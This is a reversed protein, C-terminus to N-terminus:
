RFVLGARAPSGPRTPERRASRAFSQHSERWNDLARANAARDVAPGGLKLRLPRDDALHESITRPRLDIIGDPGLREMEARIKAEPIPWPMELATRIVDVVPLADLMRSLGQDPALDIFGYGAYLAVTVVEVRRAHRREVLALPLFVSCGRKRLAEAARIESCPRTVFAFWTM